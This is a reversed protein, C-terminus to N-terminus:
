KKGERVLNIKHKPCKLDNCSVGPKHKVKYDGKPCVCYGGPGEGSREKDESRRKWGLGGSLGFASRHYGSSVEHSEIQISLYELEKINGLLNVELKKRIKEADMVKFRSPIKISLEAFVKNGLKQTKISSVEVKNKKSIEKIKKEFEKGASAGLLSDTTQRGLSFSEKLIYLGVVLALVSDVYPSYRVLFLGLFIVVSVLLDIRSHIGDSVLSISDHKKGIYIKLPSMIGNVLASIGMVLFALFGLVLPESTFFGKIADFIIWLGSLFIIVTILLGSIVEAREHGYPHGEDAPKTAIKIGVFSLSSAVVDTASNIGDAIIAASKSIVGVFIKGIALLLNVVVALISVFLKTKM